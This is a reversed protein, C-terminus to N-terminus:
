HIPSHQEAEAPQLSALLTFSRALSAQTKRIRDFLYLRLAAVKPRLFNIVLWAVALLAIGYQLTSFGSIFSEM